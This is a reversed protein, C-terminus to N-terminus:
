FMCNKKKICVNVLNEQSEMSINVSQWLTYRYLWHYWKIGIRLCILGARQGWHSAPLRGGSIDRLKFGFAEPSRFISSTQLSYLLAVVINQMHESIHSTQHPKIHNSITQYHKHKLKNLVTSKQQYPKIHRLNAGILLAHLWVKDMRVRWYGGYM